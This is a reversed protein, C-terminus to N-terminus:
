ENSDKNKILDPRNRKTSDISQENRWKEIKLHHGSLLVKPVEIGNWSSPKTYHPYEVLNEDLNFSEEKLSEEDGLIGPINRAISDIVTYCSIDGNSLIFNGISVEDINYYDIVRQDVGEYRPCVISIENFSSLENSMKNNFLKGKASMCIIKASSPNINDELAYSLVDPRLLMGSGGGYVKDDLLNHKGIGYNKLDIINLSLVGSDIAEKMISSDFPGPYLQPFLTFINFKLM